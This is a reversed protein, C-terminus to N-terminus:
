QQCETILFQQYLIFLFRGIKLFLNTKMFLILSYMGFVYKIRDNRVHKKGPEATSLDPSSEFVIDIIFFTKV